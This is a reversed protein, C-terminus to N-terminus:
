PGSSTRSRNETRRRSRSVSARATTPCSSWGIPAPANAAARLLSGVTRDLGDLADVAEAREPGVHHALADYGTYDVYIAPAGGFM